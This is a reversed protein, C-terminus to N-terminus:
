PTADKVACVLRARQWIWATEACYSRSTASARPARPLSPRASGILAAADGSKSPVVVVVPEARIYPEESM